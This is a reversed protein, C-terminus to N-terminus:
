RQELISISNKDINVMFALAYAALNEPSIKANPKQRFGLFGLYLPKGGSFYAYNFIVFNKFGASNLINALMEKDLLMKHTNAMALKDGKSFSGHTFKFVDGLTTIEKNKTSEKLYLNVIMEFNPMGLYIVTGNKKLVRKVEKMHEIAEERYLHELFASSYITFFSNSPFIRLSSADQIIDVARTTQVDMNVFEKFKVDGCGIHLGKKQKIFSNLFLYKIVYSRLLIYIVSIPNAKIFKSEPLFCKQKRKMNTALVLSNANTYKIIYKM